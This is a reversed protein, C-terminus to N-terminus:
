LIATVAVEDQVADFGGSLDYTPTALRAEPSSRPIAKTFLRGHSRRPRSADSLLTDLLRRRIFSVFERSHRIDHMHSFRLTIARQLPPQLRMIHISMLHFFYILRPMYASVFPPTTASIARCLNM